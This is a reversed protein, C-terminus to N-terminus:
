CKPPPGREPKRAMPRKGGLTMRAVDLFSHVAGIRKPIRSGFRAM